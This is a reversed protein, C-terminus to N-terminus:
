KIAAVAAKIIVLSLVIFILIFSLIFHEEFFSILKHYAKYFTPVGDNSSYESYGRDNGQNYSSNTRSPYADYRLVADRSNSGGFFDTVVVGHVDPLGSLMEIKFDKAISKLNSWDKKADGYAIEDKIDIESFSLTDALGIENNTFNKYYFKPPLESKVYNFDALSVPIPTGNNSISLDRSIDASNFKVTGSVEVGELLQVAYIKYNVTSLLLLVLVQVTKLTNFSM